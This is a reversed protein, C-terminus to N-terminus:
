KPGVKRLCRLWMATVPLNCTFAEIENDIFSFMLRLINTPRGAHLFVSICFKANDLEANRELDM